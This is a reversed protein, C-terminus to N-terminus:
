DSSSSHSVQIGMLIFEGQKLLIDPTSVIANDRYCGNKKLQEFFALDQVTTAQNKHLASIQRSKNFCHFTFCDFPDLLPTNSPAEVPNLPDVEKPETPPCATFYADLKELQFVM